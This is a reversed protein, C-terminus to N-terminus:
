HGVRGCLYVTLPLRKRSFITLFEFYPIMSLLNINRYGKIWYMRVM